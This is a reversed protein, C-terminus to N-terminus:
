QMKGHTRYAKDLDASVAPLNRLLRRAPRQVELVTVQGDAPAKITANRPVGALVSMEGFHAPPDLAAVRSSSNKVFVEATGSVVIYFADGGWDGEKVVIEGSEYTRLSVYPGVKKGGYNRGYVVVELDIEHEFQGDHESLLGSVSPLLSIADLIERRGKHERPM